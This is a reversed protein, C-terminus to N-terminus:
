SLDVVAFHFNTHLLCVFLFVVWGGLWLSYATLYIRDLCDYSSM